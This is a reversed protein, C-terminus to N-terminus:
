GGGEPERRKGDAEPGPSRVRDIDRIKLYLLGAVISVILTSIALGIKRQGYEELVQATRARAGAVEEFGRDATKDFEARDFAHIKSRSEVLVDRVGDLAFRVDALDHGQREAADIAELAESRGQELSVIRDHFHQATENCEPRGYQDHCAKCVSGPGTGLMSDSAPAIDHKGHCVECEPWGHKEFAAKHPSGDFLKGNNVHCNRCIQSVSAVAPPMAAHNGHCDNCAPAGLDHRDLLAKGHVSGRYLELQDTPLPTRGDDMVAGRMTPADAHCRGCTAPINVPNVLSQPSSPRRIGHVGHCSVCQAARQNRGGLLAVGHRSERYKLMQDVPLAPNFRRM